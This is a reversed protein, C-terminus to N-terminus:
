VEENNNKGMMEPTIFISTNITEGKVDGTLTGTLYLPSLLKVPQFNADVLEFTIDSFDNSLAYVSFEANNSIVPFNASYSNNIRMLIRKNTRGTENNIYCKEGISGILYLIATSLFAGVSLCKIANVEENEITAITSNLPPKMDFLGLILGMRYSYSTIVFPLDNTFVIRNTNDVITRISSSNANLLDNLLTSVSSANLDSYSEVPKIIIENTEEEEENINTENFTIYDNENLVEFCANSTLSDIMLTSFQTYPTKLNSHILGYNNPNNSHETFKIVIDM